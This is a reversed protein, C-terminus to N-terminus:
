PIEEGYFFSQEDKVPLEMEKRDAQSAKLALDVFMKEKEESNMKRVASEEKGELEGFVLSMVREVVDEEKEKEEVLQQEMIELASLRYCCCGCTVFTVFTCFVLILVKSNNNKEEPQLQIPTDALGWDTEVM